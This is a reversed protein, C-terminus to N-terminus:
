VYSLHVSIIVVHPNLGYSKQCCSKKQLLFKNLIIYFFLYNSDKYVLVLFIIFNILHFIYMHIDVFYILVDFMLIFNKKLKRM